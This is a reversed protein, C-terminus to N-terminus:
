EEDREAGRVERERERELCGSEDHWGVWVELSAAIVDYSTARSNPRHCHSAQDSLM